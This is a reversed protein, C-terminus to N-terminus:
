EPQEEYLIPIEVQYLLEDAQDMGLIYTPQCDFDPSLTPRQM